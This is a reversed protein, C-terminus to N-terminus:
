ALLHLVLKSLAELGFLLGVFGVTLKKGALGSANKFGQYLWTVHAAVFVLAILAVALLVPTVKPPYSPPPVIAFLALAGLLVPLRALGTM